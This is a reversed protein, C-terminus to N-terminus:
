LSNSPQFIIGIATRFLERSVTGSRILLLGKNFLHVDFYPCTPTFRVTFFRRIVLTHWTKLFFFFPPCHYCFIIVDFSLMFSLVWCTSPFIIIVNQLGHFIIVDFSLLIIVGLLYNSFHYRTCFIIVCIIVYIIVCIIVYIIVSLYM